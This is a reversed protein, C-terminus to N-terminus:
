DLVASEPSALTSLGRMIRTADGVIEEILDAVAPLDDLLGVVQGSALVGAGTDGDVLGARLLMPTNAAMVVQSWTRDNGRKTALGERFLSPWSLGTLRRFRVANAAARALGTAPGSRELADVLETRLVRHPM